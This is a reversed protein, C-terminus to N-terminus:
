RNGIWSKSSFSYYEFSIDGAWNIWRWSATKVGAAEISFVNASLLFWLEFFCPFVVKSGAM